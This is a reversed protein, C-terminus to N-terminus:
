KLVVSKREIQALHGGYFITLLKFSLLMGRAQVPTLAM